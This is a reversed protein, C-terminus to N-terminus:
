GTPRWCTSCSRPRRGPRSCGSSGTRCARGRPGASDTVMREAARRARRRAVAGARVPCARMAEHGGAASAGSTFGHGALIQRARRAGPMFLALRWRRPRARGQAGISVTTPASRSSRRCTSSRSRGAGGQQALVANTCYTLFFDARDQAMVWGYTNRGEPPKPPDPGGTLQLAKADLTAFSGPRLAEAKEFLQWAYDGSPDAKPTSTGLRVAPDLMCTSCRRRARGRAEPQALACLRNRAFLAVPGGWGADALAERISWTPRPSCIRRRAAARDARAAPGLRAFTPEVAHRVAAEYASPSM